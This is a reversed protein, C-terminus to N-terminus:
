KHTLDYVTSLHKDKDSVTIPVDLHPWDIDIYRDAYNIGDEVDPHYYQTCKYVFVTNDELALFGHAFGPPIWFQQRTTASLTAAVYRAFTVSGPRLDVAVDYVSGCLVSVLKGQAYPDEQFHLGRLVGKHSKSVNDQVFGVKIGLIECYLRQSFTEVFSGRDDGYVEPTILKVDPISMDQVIM